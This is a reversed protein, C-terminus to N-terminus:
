RRRALSGCAACRTPRAGAPARDGPPWPPRGRLVGAGGRPRRALQAHDGFALAGVHDAAQSLYSRRRRASATLTANTVAGAPSRVSVTPAYRPPARSSPAPAHRRQGEAGVPHAGQQQRAPGSGRRPQGLRHQRHRAQDPDALRQAGEASELLAGHEAGSVAAPRAAPSIAVLSAAPRGTRAPRPAARARSRPVRWPRDGHEGAGPEGGGPHHRGQPREGGAHVAGVAEPVM